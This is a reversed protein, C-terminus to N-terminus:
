SGIFFNFVSILLVAVYILGVCKTIANCATVSNVAKLFPTKKGLAIVAIEGRWPPLKASACLDRLAANVPASNSPSFLARIWVRHTGIEVVCDHTEYPTELMAHLRFGKFFDVFPLEAIREPIDDLAANAPLIWHEDPNERIIKATRLTVSHGSPADMTYIRAVTSCYQAWETRGHGVLLNSRVKVAATPLPKTQFRPM